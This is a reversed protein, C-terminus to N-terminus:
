ALTATGGAGARTGLWHSSVGLTVDTVLSLLSLSIIGPSHVFIRANVKSRFVEALLSDIFATRDTMAEYPVRSRWILDTHDYLYLSPSSLFSPFSPTSKELSLRM